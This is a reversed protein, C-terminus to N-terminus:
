ILTLPWIAEAVQRSPMIMWFSLSASGKGLQLESELQSRKKRLQQWRRRLSQKRGVLLNWLETDGACRAERAGLSAEEIDAEANRIEKAVDKLRSM